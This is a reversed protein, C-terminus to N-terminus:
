GTEARDLFGSLAENFGPARQVAHGVGQLVVREAALDRELADCIADFAAHHAGLRRAEPIAPRSATL